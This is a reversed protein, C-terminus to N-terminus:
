MVTVNHWNRPMSYETTNKTWIQNLHPVNRVWPTTHSQLGGIQLSRRTYWQWKKSHHTVHRPRILYLGESPTPNKKNTTSCSLRNSKADPLRRISRHDKFIIRNNALLTIKRPKERAHVVKVTETRKQYSQITGPLEPCSRTDPTCNEGARPFNQTPLEPYRQRTKLLEQATKTLEHCSQFTRLLLSCKRTAKSLEPYSFAWRKTM